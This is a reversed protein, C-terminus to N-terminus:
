RHGRLHISTGGFYDRSQHVDGTVTGVSNWTVTRDEPEPRRTDAPVPAPAPVFGNRLLGGTPSPVRLYATGEFEKERVPVPVYADEPDAAYGSRVADEFARASVIAAVRTGPGSRALLDKVPEADLLRHLEVRTDGSGTSVGDRNPDTIPGVTVSVRMRLDAAHAGVTAHYDLEDQLSRLFSSLLLPLVASTFGLVHGDGTSEAFRRDRWVELEGCREFAGRLIGPIADTVEAHRRGPLGSFGKVDVVLLARYPPLEVWDEAVTGEEDSSGAVLLSGSRRGAPHGGGSVEVTARIM